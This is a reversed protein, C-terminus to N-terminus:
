VLVPLPDRQDHGLRAFQAKGDGRRTLGVPDELPVSLRDHDDRLRQDLWELRHYEVIDFCWLLGAKREVLSLRPRGRFVRCEPATLSDHSPWIRRRATGHDPVILTPVSVAM